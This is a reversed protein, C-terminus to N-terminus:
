KNRDREAAAKGDQYSKEDREMKEKLDSAHGSVAGAVAGAIGGAVAGAVGGTAAGGAAGTSGWTGAERQANDHRLPNADTDGVKIIRAEPAYNMLGSPVERPGTKRGSNPILRASSTWDGAEVPAGASVADGDSGKAKSASGTFLSNLSEDDWPKPNPKPWPLPKPGPPTPICSNLVCPNPVPLSLAQAFSPMLVLVALMIKM